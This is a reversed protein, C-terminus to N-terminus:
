AREPSVVIVDAAPADDFLRQVADARRALVRRQNVSGKDTIEGDSPSLPEFVLLARGVRFSSGGATTNYAALLSGIGERLAAENSHADRARPGAFLLLGIEDRNEGAVVVEDIVTGAAALVGIRVAGADVWTGSSLKFNEALRGDFLLGMTPDYPDAFRMADGTRYFGDEDFARETLDDRRWYGPTVAPGRVRVELKNEFRVFLMESGPGPLGVDAPDRLPYHVATVMPATETLGWSGTVPVEGEGYCAALERLADWTTKPLAAAANGILRLRSFFRRAFTEDANLAEVLLKHGRPVNFYLTPRHEGLAAVSRAFAGPIPRGDDIVLTGGHFLAMNFNHNGGFTHHWPLWDVLVVDQEALFPWLGVISQQNSCLMRHTNIVGKPEGTSGSTFLIKAIHDPTVAAHARDAADADGERLERLTHANARPPEGSEVVLPTAADVAELAGRYANADAAFVLGPALANLVFQLRRLDGFQTSYAPSVPAVPIGAYLAALSVTAHAISAQSLIAVPTERTLGMALMGGGTRRVADFMEAYTVTRWADGNREALFTRAPRERAWRALLAGVSPPYAGLPTRTRLVFSGDGRAETEVAPASFMTTMGGTAAGPSMTGVPANNM